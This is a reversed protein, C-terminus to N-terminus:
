KTLCEQSLHRIQQFGDFDLRSLPRFGRDDPHVAEAGIAVIEHRNYVLEVQRANRCHAEHERV